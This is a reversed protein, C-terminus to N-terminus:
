VGSIKSEFLVKMKMATNEWGGIKEITKRGNVSVTDSFTKNNCLFIIKEALQKPDGPEFKICNYGDMLLNSLAQIDSVIIPKKAALYEYIKLPSFYFRDIKIYPAVLIDFTSLYHPIKDPNVSGSLEVFPEIELENILQEVSPREEGNGLLILKLNPKTALAISFAEVLIKIGHWKSFNGVFGIRYEKREDTITTCNGKVSSDFRNLNVTNPFVAIKEHLIGNDILIQKNEDSVTILSAAMRWNKNEIKREINFMTKGYVYEMELFMPSNIELIVPAKFICKLKSITQDFPVPRIYIIDHNARGIYESLDKIFIRSKFYELFFGIIDYVSFPLIKKLKNFIGTKKSDQNFLDDYALPFPYITVELGVNKMANILERGHVAAGSHLNIQRNIYLVKTM